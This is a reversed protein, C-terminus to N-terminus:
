TQKRLRKFGGEALDHAVFDEMESDKPASSRKNKLNSPLRPWSRLM